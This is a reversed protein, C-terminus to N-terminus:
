LTTTYVLEPPVEADSALAAKAEADGTLLDLLFATSFHRIWRRADAKDWAPDSCIVERHLDPLQSTFPMNECSDTPIQHGADVLAVLSKRASSVGELALQPGWDWPVVFDGTGGIAMMPITISSLGTRHDDFRSQVISMLGPRRRHGSRVFIAM